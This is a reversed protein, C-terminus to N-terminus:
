QTDVYLSDGTSACTGLIQEPPIFPYYRTYSGGPLLLISAKAGTVSVGNITRATSTTDGAVWPSGGGVLIINCNDTPNNNQISLSHRNNSPVSALVQQFTLGAAIVAPSAITGATSTQQALSPSTALLLAFGLGALIKARM